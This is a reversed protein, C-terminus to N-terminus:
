APEFNEISVAGSVLFLKIMGSLPSNTVLWFPSLTPVTSREPLLQVTVMSQFLMVRLESLSLKWIFM